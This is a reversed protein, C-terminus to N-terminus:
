PKPPFYHSDNFLATPAAATCRPATGLAHTALGGIAGFLTAILALWVGFILAPSPRMM